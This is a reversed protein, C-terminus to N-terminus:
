AFVFKTGDPKLDNLGEVLERLDNKTFREREGKIIITSVKGSGDPVFQNSPGEGGAVFGGGSSAVSSNGGAFSSSAIASINEAQAAAAVGAFAAGLFPGGIAAGFRYASVVSEAAAVTARALAAAKEIEFFIKNHQAAQSITQRFSAADEALTKQRRWKELGLFGEIFAEQNTIEKERAEERIEEMREQYELENQLNLERYEQETVLKQELSDELTKQQKSWEMFAQESETALGYKLTELKQALQKRLTELEKNEPTATREDPSLTYDAMSSGGALLGGSVDGQRRPPGNRAARAEELAAVGEKGFLAGFASNGFGEVLRSIQSYASGIASATQTAAAAIDGLLHAFDKLGQQVEPDSLIKGLDEASDTIADIFGADAMQAKLEMWTNGLRNFAAQSSNSAELAAAGFESKLATGLKILDRTTVKGNEVMKIFEANSVGMGKAFLQLAGPLSEGLQQRLEEMSVRGKSAMQALAMFVLQVREGSLRMATAAESVGTFIDQTEKLTLGARLASAAFSAFGNGTTMLDLGLRESEQRVYEMAIAAVRADGTAAQMRFRLAEFQMGANLVSKGFNFAAWAGGLAIFATKVRNVSAQLGGMAKDTQKEFKQVEGGAKAIAAQLGKDVAKLEVYLEDLRTAM